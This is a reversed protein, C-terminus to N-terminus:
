ERLQEVLVVGHPISGRAAQSEAAARMACASAARRPACIASALVDQVGGEVAHDGLDRVSSPSHIVGEGGPRGMGGTM